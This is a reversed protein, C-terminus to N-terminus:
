TTELLSSAQWFRIAASVLVAIAMSGMSWLVARPVALMLTFWVVTETGEILGVPMTISTTEGNAGAGAGRKELIASLYLGTTINVYFSALLLAAATWAGDVGAGQALGIPVAAYVIVDLVMDLYAGRDGASAQQRALVGDLGDLVRNVLWAAVAVPWLSFAAALGAGIGFGFGFLSVTVPRVSGPSHEAVPQLVRTVLPRVRRDLVQVVVGDHPCLKGFEAAPAHGRASGAIESAHCALLSGWWAGEGAM